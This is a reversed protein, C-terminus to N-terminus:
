RDARLRPDNPASRDPLRLPASSPPGRLRVSFRLSSRARTKARTGHDCGGLALPQMLRPTRSSTSATPQPRRHHFRPGDPQCEPCRNCRCTDRNGTARFRRRTPNGTPGRSTEPVPPACGPRSGSRLRWTRARLRVAPPAVVPGPTKAHTGSDAGGLCPAAGPFHLSAFRRRPQKSLRGKGM